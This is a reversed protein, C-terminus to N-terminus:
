DDKKRNRLSLSLVRVFSFIFAFPFALFFFKASFALIECLDTWCSQFVSDIWGVFVDFGM